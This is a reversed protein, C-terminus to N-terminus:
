DADGAAPAVADGEHGADEVAVRSHDSDEAAEAQADTDAPSPPVAEGLGAAAAAAGPAEVAAPAPPVAEGAGAAPQFAGRLAAIELLETTALHAAKRMLRAHRRNEQRASFNCVRVTPPARAGRAHGLGAPRRASCRCSDGRPQASNQAHASADKRLDARLERLTKQAALREQRIALMKDTHAASKAKAKAAKAKAKPAM